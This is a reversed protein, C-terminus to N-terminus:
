ILHPGRPSANRASSRTTTSTSSFAWGFFWRARDEPALRVLFWEGHGVFRDAAGERGNERGYALSWGVAYWAMASVFTDLLNKILIAKTNKSRVSGAELLAFGLQMIFVLMGGMM